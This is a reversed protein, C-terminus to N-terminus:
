NQDGRSIETVQPREALVEQGAHFARARKFGRRGLLTRAHDRRAARRCKGPM